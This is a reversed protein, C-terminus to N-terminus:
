YIDLLRQVIYPEGTPHSGVDKRQLVAQKHRHYMDQIYMLIEYISPLTWNVPALEMAHM